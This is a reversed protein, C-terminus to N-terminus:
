DRTKLRVHYVMKGCFAVYEKEIEEFDDDIYHKFLLPGVARNWRITLPINRDAAIKKGVESLPWDGRLGDLLLRHYNRLRKGYGEERLFRVLAYSQGYFATVAETQNTALVEGPNMAILEKLPIMKNKVLTKKLAGLRYMNRGPEFYFLGQEGRHAEFLMAIGEDLWSPLRFRFHRSNFQHWGEHGLASFTRERGINYGVCAGNLYYAGAKIKCFLAAQPGAFSKTFDEWQRRDAFLYIRFRTTTEIPEPLQGQYGRYASEVFGPVQSLMLPELLMTYIEYHETTIILGDGYKNPWIEISKVAPLHAERLYEIMGASTDIRRAGGTEVSAGCGVLCIITIISISALKRLMITQTEAFLGFM